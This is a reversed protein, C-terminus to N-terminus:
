KKSDQLIPLWVLNSAPETGESEEGQFLTFFSGRGSKYIGAKDSQGGVACPSLSLSQSLTHMCTGLPLCEARNKEM